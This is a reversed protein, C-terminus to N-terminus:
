NTSAAWRGIAIGFSRTTGGSSAGGPNDIRRMTIRGGVSGPLGPLQLGGGWKELEATAHQNADEGARHHRAQVGTSACAPQEAEHDEHRPHPCEVRSARERARQEASVRHRDGERRRDESPEGGRDATVRMEASGGAQRHQEEGRRQELRLEEGECQHAVDGAAPM